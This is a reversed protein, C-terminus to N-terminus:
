ASRRWTVSGDPNLLLDLGRTLSLEFVLAAADPKIEVRTTDDGDDFVAFAPGKLAEALKAMTERSPRHEPRPVRQRREFAAAIDEYSAANDFLVAYGDENRVVLTGNAFCQTTLVAGNATGYRLANDRARTM